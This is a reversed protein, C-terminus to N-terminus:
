LDSVRETKERLDEIIGELESSNAFRLEASGKRGEVRLVGSCIRTNVLGSILYIENTEADYVVEPIVKAIDFRDKSNAM